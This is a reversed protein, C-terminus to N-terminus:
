SCSKDLRIKSISFYKSKTEIKFHGLEEAEGCRVLLGHMALSKNYMSLSRKTHRINGVLLLHLLCCCYICTHIYMHITFTRTFIFVLKENRKFYMHTVFESNSISHLKLYFELLIKFDLNIIITAVTAHSDLYSCATWHLCSQMRAFVGKWLYVNMCTFMHIYM